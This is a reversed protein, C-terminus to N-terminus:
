TLDTSKRPSVESTRKCLISVRMGAQLLASIEKEIRIDPPFRGGSFHIMGIDDVNERDPGDLHFVEADSALGALFAVLM